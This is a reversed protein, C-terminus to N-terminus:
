KRERYWAVASTLEDIQKMAADVTEVAEDIIPNGTGADDSVELLADRRSSVKGSVSAIIKTMETKKKSGSKLLSMDPLERMAEKVADLLAEARSGYPDAANGIVTRLKERDAHRKWLVEALFVFDSSKITTRGALVAAARVLKSSKIWTRDSARTGDEQVAIKITKQTGKISDNWSIAKVANRLLELDGDHLRATITPIGGNAVLDALAEEDSVYDVWFKIMFRDYLAALSEDQPYENSAAICTELPIRTKNTGNRLWRGQLTTLFTNLVASSSKFIEDVFLIKCDGAMGSLTREYKDDDRMKKYSFMGYIEEPSTYKTLQIDFFSGGAVCEAMTEALLSKGTGPPGLMLVHEGALLAVLAGRIVNKREAFASCLQNEVEAMRGMAAELETTQKTNGM